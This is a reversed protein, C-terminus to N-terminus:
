IYQFWIDGNNGVGSTPAVASITINYAPGALLDWDSVDLGPFYGGNINTGNAYYVGGNNELYVVDGESYTEAGSYQGRWTMITPLGLGGVTAGSFDVSGTFNPSDIPAKANLETVITTAFNPDDGLAAALENLTDLSSPASDLLSEIVSQADSFYPLDAWLASGNGIKFRYSDTEFGIEGISLVPNAATWEAATGRRNIIKTYAM